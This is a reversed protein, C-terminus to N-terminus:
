NAWQLGAAWVDKKSLTPEIIVTGKKRKTQPYSEYEAFM